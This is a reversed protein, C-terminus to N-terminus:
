EKGFREMRYVPFKDTVEWFLFRLFGLSVKIEKEILIGRITRQFLFVDGTKILDNKILDEFKLYSALGTLVNSALKQKTGWFLEYEGDKWDDFDGDTRCKSAAAAQELWDPDNRGEAIDEQARGLYHRWDPDYKLFDESIRTEGDVEAIMRQDEPLMSLLKAKTEQDLVDWAKPDAFM